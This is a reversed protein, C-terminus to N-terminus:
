VSRGRPYPLLMLVRSHLTTFIYAARSVSYQESSGWNFLIASSMQILHRKYMTLPSCLNYWWICVHIHATIQIRKKASWLLRYLVKAEGQASVGHRGCSIPSNWATSMSLSTHEAANLLRTRFMNCQFVAIFLLATKTGNQKSTNTPVFKTAM